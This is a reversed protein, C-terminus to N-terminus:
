TTEETVAGLRDYEFYSGCSLVDDYMPTGSESYGGPPNALCDDLTMEPLNGENCEGDVCNDVTSHQNMTGTTVIQDGGAANYSGNIQADGYYKNGAQEGMSTFGGVISDAIAYGGIWPVTVRLANDVTGWVPHESPKSPPAVMEVEGRSTVSTMVQMYVGPAVEMMEFNINTGSEKFAKAYQVHYSQISKHVIAEKATSADGIVGSVEGVENVMADTPIFATGGCSSLLFALVNGTIIKM